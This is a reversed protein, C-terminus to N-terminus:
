ENWKTQGFVGGFWYQTLLKVTELDKKTLDYRKSAHILLSQGDFNAELVRAHRLGMFSYVLVPADIYERLSRTRLRAIIAEIILLIEGISLLRSIFMQVYEQYFNCPPLDHALNDEIFYACQDFYSDLFGGLRRAHWIYTNCNDDLIVEDKFFEETKEPDFPTMDPM